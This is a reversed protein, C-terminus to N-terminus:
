HKLNSFEQSQLLNPLFLFYVQDFINEKVSLAQLEWLLQLKEIIFEASRIDQTVESSKFHCNIVMNITVM